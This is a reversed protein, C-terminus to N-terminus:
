EIWYDYMLAELDYDKVNFYLVWRHYKSKLYEFLEKYSRFIKVEKKEEDSAQTILVKIM